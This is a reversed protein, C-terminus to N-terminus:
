SISFASYCSFICRPHLFPIFDGRGTIAIILYLLAGFFRAGPHLPQRAQCHPQIIQHHKEMELKAVLLAVQGRQQPFLLELPIGQSYSSKPSGHQETGEAGEDLGKWCCM